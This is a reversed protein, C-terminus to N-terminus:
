GRAKNLIDNALSNTAASIVILNNEQGFENYKKNGLSQGNGDFMIGGAEKILPFAVAIELNAKRTAEIVGDVNGTSLDAYHIASSRM